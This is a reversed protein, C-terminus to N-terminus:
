FVATYSHLYLGSHEQSKFNRVAIFIFKVFRHYNIKLLGTLRLSFFNVTLPLFVGFFKGNATFSVVGNLGEKLRM